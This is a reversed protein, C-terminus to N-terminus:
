IELHIPHLPHDGKNLNAFLQENAVHVLAGQNDYVWGHFQCVVSKCQGEGPKLIKNLRHRCYNHFARLKNDNGRIVLVSTNLIAIDRVFYAGPHSLAETERGICLWSRKFVRERELEFYEASVCDDAALPAMGLDPYRNLYKMNPSTAAPM